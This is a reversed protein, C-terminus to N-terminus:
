TRCGNLANKVARVLEQIGFVTHNSSFNRCSNLPARGLAINVGAVLEDVTVSCNRDCDGLCAPSTNLLVAVRGGDLEGHATVVDPKRDGNLDAVAIGTAAPPVPLSVASDFSGDGRGRLVSVSGGDQDLGDAVALADASVLDVVCDGDVDTAALGGPFAGVDYEEASDFTGDGKGLLVSITDSLENAVAVDAKGDRDLDEVIVGAPAEGVDAAGRLRLSGNEEGLLVAVQALGGLGVALDAYRDGDIHGAAVVTPSGLLEILSLVDFRGDGRGLLVTVTGGLEDATALDVDGDGDFDAAAISQPALGVRPNAVREFGGAGDGLLITVTSAAENAVALDLRRDANFDAAAIAAPQTDALVRAAPALLGAGDGWLVSVDDTANNATAVDALGDGNFDGAVIGSPAESCDVQPECGPPGLPLDTFPAFTIQGARAVSFWLVPLLPILLTAIAVLGMGRM